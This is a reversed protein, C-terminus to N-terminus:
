KYKALVADFDKIDQATLESGKVSARFYVLQGEKDVFLLCFKNDCSGLGWSNVLIRNDDALNIAAKGKTKKEAMSRVIANPYGTDKLNLVSYGQINPSVARGSSELGDTFSKNANEGVDPDVYFIMLCKKGFDNFKAPNKDLDTLGAPNSVKHPLTPGQKQQAFVASLPALIMAAAALVILKKM